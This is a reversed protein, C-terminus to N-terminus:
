KKGGFESTAKYTGDKFIWLAEVNDINEILSLGEDFSMCFLATSLADALASSDAPAQVSVSTFIDAPYGVTPDIIHSYQKEGYTFSRQYSGSTVVTSNDLTFIQNYGLSKDNFPNEIKISWPENQMKKGYSAINGGLNILFGDCGLEILRKYLISAVYGKAIAGFDLSLKSDSFYVTQLEESLLLSDIDTHSIAENIENQSPIYASQPHKSSYERAVHWISTLAGIAVNFKGNTISYLEKALVLAHFLEQGVEIPGSAARENLTNLNVIGEYSNYIDFLKHYEEIVTDFESTYLNFETKDCYVTLSCYTDFCDFREAIHKEKVSCSCLSSLTSFLLLLAVAFSLIRKNM